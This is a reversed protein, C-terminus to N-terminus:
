EVRLRIVEETGPAPKPANPGFFHRHTLESGTHLSAQMAWLLFVVSAVGVLRSLLSLGPIVRAFFAALAAVAAIVAAVLLVDSAGKHSQVASAVSVGVYRVASAEAVGTRHAWLAGALGLVMCVAALRLVARHPWLLSLVM